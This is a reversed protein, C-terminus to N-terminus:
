NKSGVLTFNRALPFLPKGRVPNSGERNAIRLNSTRGMLWEVLNRKDLTGYTGFLKKICFTGPLLGAIM